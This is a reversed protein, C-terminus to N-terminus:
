KFLTYGTTCYHVHRDARGNREIVDETSGISYAVFYRAVNIFCYYVVTTRVSKYTIYETSVVGEAACEIRCNVDVTSNHRIPLVVILSCNIACTKTFMSPRLVCINIQIWSSQNVLSVTTTFKSLNDAFRRNVGPFCRHFGQSCSM